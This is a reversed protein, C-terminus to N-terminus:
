MAKHYVGDFKVKSGSYIGSCSATSVIIESDSLTFYIVCRAEDQNYLGDDRLEDSYVALGNDVRIIFTSDHMSGSYRINKFLYPDYSDRWSTFSFRYTSYSEDLPELTLVNGHEDDIEEWTGSYDPNSFNCSFLLFSSLVMRILTSFYM